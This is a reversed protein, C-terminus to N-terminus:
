RLNDIIHMQDKYKVKELMASIFSQIGLCLPRHKERERKKRTKDTHYYKSVIM